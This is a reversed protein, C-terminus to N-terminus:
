NPCTLVASNFFFRKQQNELGNVARESIPMRLRRWTWARTPKSFVMLCRSSCRTSMLVFTLILYGQKLDWNTNIHTHTHFVTSLSINKSGDPFWLALAPSSTWLPPYAMAYSCCFLLDKRWKQPEIGWTVLPPASFLSLLLEQNSYAFLIPTIESM